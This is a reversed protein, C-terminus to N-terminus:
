RLNLLQYSHFEDLKNLMKEDRKRPTQLSKVEEGESEPTKYGEEPNRLSESSSTVFITNDDCFLASDESLKHRKLSSRVLDRFRNRKRKAIVTFASNLSPTLPRMNIANFYVFQANEVFDTNNKEHSLM